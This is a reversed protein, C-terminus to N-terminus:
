TSQTDATSNTNEKYISTLFYSLLDIGVLFGEDRTNPTTIEWAHAFDILVLEPPSGGVVDYIFLLSAAYFRWQGTMIFERVHNMKELWAPIVDSRLTTGDRIFTSIAEKMHSEEHCDWGFNKPYKKFSQTESNFVKMGCFRFGMKASTTEQDRQIHGDKKKPNCDEDWTQTGMKMDLVSPHQFKKTIDEMVIYEIKGWQTDREITGFFEPVLKYQTVLPCRGDAVAKYFGYEKPNLNPKLVKGDEFFLSAKGGHGGVQNAADAQVAKNDQEPESPPNPRPSQKKPEPEPEPKPSQKEPEPRPSQKKPEPEKTTVIPPNGETTETPKQKKHEHSEGTTHSHQEPAASTTTKKTPEPKIPPSSSNQKVQGSPKCGM